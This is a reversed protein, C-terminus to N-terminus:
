LKTLDTTKQRLGRQFSVAVVASAFGAGNKRFGRNNPRGRWRKVEYTRAYPGVGNGTPDTPNMSSGVDTHPCYFRDQLSAKPFFDVKPSFEIQLIQRSFQNYHEQINESKGWGHWFRCRYPSPLWGATGHLIGLDLIM